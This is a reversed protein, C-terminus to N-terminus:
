NVFLLWVLYVLGLTDFVKNHSQAARMADHELYFNLGVVFISKQQTFTQLRFASDEREVRNYIM